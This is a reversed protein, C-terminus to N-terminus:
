PWCGRPFPRAREAAEPALFYAQASQGDALEVPGRAYEDGEFADLRALTADDVDYLEGTIERDGQALAPYAGIVV